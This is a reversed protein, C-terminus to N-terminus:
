DTPEEEAAARVMDQHLIGDEWYPEGTREFGLSAYFPELHAQAALRISAGPAVREVVRMAERMLPRGLGSGRVARDTVVRGISAEPSEPAPAFVRAYAVLRGELRGLLHLAQPDRGDIEGFACDQEVVFVDQRLRLADHLDAPRLEHFAFVRWEVADARM